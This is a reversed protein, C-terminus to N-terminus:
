EVLHATQKKCEAQLKNFHQLYLAFQFSKAMTFESIDYNEHMHDPLNRDNFDRFLPLMELNIRFLGLKEFFKAPGIGQRRHPRQNRPGSSLVQGMTCCSIDEEEHVGEHVSKPFTGDCIDRFKPLTELAM